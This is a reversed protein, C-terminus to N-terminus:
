RGVNSRRSKWAQKREHIDMSRQYERQIWKQANLLNQKKNTEM